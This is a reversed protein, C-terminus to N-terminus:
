NNNDNNDNDTTSPNDSYNNTNNTLIILNENENITNINTHQLILDMTNLIILKNNIWSISEKQNKLQM